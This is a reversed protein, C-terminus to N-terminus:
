QRMGAVYQLIYRAEELGIKADGNVDAGSTPYSPRISASTMGVLVQLVLIADALDVDGDGNIDGALASPGGTLVSHRVLLVKGLEGLDTTYM